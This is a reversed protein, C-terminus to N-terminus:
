QTRKSPGGCAGPLLELMGLNAEIGKIKVGAFEREGQRMERDIQDQETELARKAAGRGM